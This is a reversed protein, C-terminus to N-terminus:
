FKTTKRGSKWTDWWEIVKPVIRLLCFNKSSPGDPFYNALDFKAMKWVRKKDKLNRVIKATGNVTAIMSGDPQKAFHLCVKANRKVQKVKRANIFSSIWISLDDGIIPSVSRVRPQSGDVTALFAHMCTKKMIALIKKKDPKLRSM